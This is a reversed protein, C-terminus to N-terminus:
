QTSNCPFLSIMLSTCFLIVVWPDNLFLPPWPCTLQVKKFLYQTYSSSLVYFYLLVCPELPVFMSLGLSYFNNFPLCRFLFPDWFVLHDHVYLSSHKFLCCLKWLYTNSVLTNFFRPTRAHWHCPFPIPITLHYCNLSPLPFFGLPSFAITLPCRCLHRLCLLSILDLLIFLYLISLVLIFYM